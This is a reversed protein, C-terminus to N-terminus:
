ECYYKIIDSLTKQCVPCFAVGLSKMKCNIFPRYLGKSKYAAGEYVGVEFSYKNEVPTPIPIDKKIMNKWKSDFNVLTTINAEWPETNLNYMGETSVESDYYEDGLGALSHGLEHMFIENRYQNKAATVNWFNYIGGGGFIDTNVLVCVHDCPVTSCFNRLIHYDYLTLYRKSGFTNFSTGLATNKYENLQPLDTGSEASNPLVARINIQQTFNKFPENDMLYKATADVDTLFSEEDEFTYGDGIFVIDLAESINSKIDINFTKYNFVIEEKVLDKKPDFEIEWIKYFKNDDIKRSHLEILVRDKPFPIIISEPFCKSINQAEETHIYEGFLSCYGYNFILIGSNKDYVRVQYTGLDFSNILNKKTGAWIKEKLFEKFFVAETNNNGCHYIDIRLSNETFYDDYNKQSYISVSAGFILGLYIFFKKM